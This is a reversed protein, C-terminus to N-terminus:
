HSHGCESCRTSGSRRPYGCKMCAGRAWGRRFDRTLFLVAGPGCLWFLTTTGVLISWFTPLACYCDENRRAIAYLPISLALELGTGALIWRSWRALVRPDRSRGISWLAVTWGVGMALWVLVLVTGVANEGGILGLDDLSASGLPGAAVLLVLQLVILLTGGSLFLAIVIAAIVSARLSRGEDARVMRGFLGPMLPAVFAVQTGAIAAAILVLEFAVGGNSEDTPDLRGWSRGFVHLAEGPGEEVAIIPWVIAAQLALAVVFLVLFVAALAWGRGPARLTM